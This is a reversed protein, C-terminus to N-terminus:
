RRKQFYEIGFLIISKGIVIQINRKIQGTDRENGGGVHQIGYRIYKSVSHFDYLKRTVRVVVFDMDGVVEQHGPLQFIM